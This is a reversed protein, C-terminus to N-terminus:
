KCQGSAICSTVYITSSKSQLVMFFPSYETSSFKQIKIFQAAIAFTKQQNYSYFTYLLLMCHSCLSKQQYVFEYNHLIHFKGRCFM